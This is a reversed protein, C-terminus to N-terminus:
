SRSGARMARASRRAHRRRAAADPLRRPGRRYRRLAARGARRRARRARHAAGDRRRRRGRHRRSGRRLPELHTQVSSVEPVDRAIAREVQEAIAHAEELSLEGPLKLHLSLETGSDVSVVSVNHVERVRPVALAAAHARERVAGDADQRSSTSSSTRKPCRTRCRANSRTPRQMARRFLPTTPSARDRRGRLLARGSPANAAAAAAGSTARRRDGAASGGGRGGTRPGHARRHQAADTASGRDPRARRRVPGRRRRRRSPGRAGAAPRRASRGLRRSRQRLSRRELRARPELLRAGRAM